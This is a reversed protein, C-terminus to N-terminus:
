SPTRPVQGSPVSMCIDAAVSGSAPATWKRRSPLQFCLALPGESLPDGPPPAAPSTGQLTGVAPSHCSPPAGTFTEGFCRLKDTHEARWPARWPRTPARAMGTLQSVSCRGDGTRMLSSVAARRRGGGGTEVEVACALSRWKGGGGERRRRCRRRRRWRDRRGAMTDRPIRKRSSRSWTASPETFAALRRRQKRRM